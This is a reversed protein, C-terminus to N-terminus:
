EFFFQGTPQAELATLKVQLLERLEDNQRLSEMLQQQLLRVEHLQGELDFNMTSNPESYFTQSADHAMSPTNQVGISTNTINTYIDLEQRLSRNLTDMSNLRFQLKSIERAFDATSNLQTKGDSSFVSETPEIFSRYMADATTTPRYDETSPLDGAGRSLHQKRPSPSLSSLKSDVHDSPLTPMESTSGGIHKSPPSIFDPHSHLSDAARVREPSSVPSLDQHQKRQQQLSELKQRLTNITTNREDLDGNMRLFVSSLTHSYM